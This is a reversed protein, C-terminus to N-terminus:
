SKKLIELEHKVKKRKVTALRVLRVPLLLPRALKHQYFFPFEGRYEEPNPFLRSKIYARKQSKTAKASFDQHNKIRNEVLHDDTGHSGSALMYALLRADEESFQPMAQLTEESFLRLIIRRLQQETDRFGLKEAEAAVYDEDLGEKSLYVYIDALTKVGIGSKNLHKVIHAILFLYFDEKSFAYEYERGEVKLLKPKINEYYNYMTEHRARMLSRHIEFYYMPERKYTDHHSIQYEDATYGRALMLDHVQEMCTNDVLIDVDVMERLGFVPYYNQLISGKLPMYWIKEREFMDCIARRETNFMMARRVANNKKQLWKKASQESFLERDGLFPTLAHSVLATVNHQGALALLADTDAGELRSRAPQTRHLACCLLYIMLQQTNTIRNTM